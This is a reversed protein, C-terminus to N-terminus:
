SNVTSTRGRPFTMMLAKEYPLYDEIKVRAATKCSVFDIPFLPKGPVLSFSCYATGPFGKTTDALELRVLDGLDRLDHTEPQTEPLSLAVSPSGELRAIKDRNAAVFGPM